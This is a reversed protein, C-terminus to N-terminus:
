DRQLIAQMDTFGIPASTHEHLIRWSGAVQQLLWSLRNQMSKLTTGDTAIVAYTLIASFGALPGTETFVRDEFVVKVQEDKLSGFWQAVAGRWADAGEYSWVGWADFIRVDPAYLGMFGDLDCALVFSAYRDILSQISNIEPSM